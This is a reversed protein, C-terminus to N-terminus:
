RDESGNRAPTRQPPAGRGEAAANPSGAANLGEATAGAGRGSRVDAPKVLKSPDFLLNEKERKAEEGSGDETRELSDELPGSKRYEYSMALLLMAGSVLAMAVLWLAGWLRQRVMATNERQDLPLGCDTCILMPHAHGVKTVM